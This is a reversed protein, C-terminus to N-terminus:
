NFVIGLVGGLHRSIGDGLAIESPKQPLLNSRIGYKEIKIHLIIARSGKIDGMTHTLCCVESIGRIVQHDIDWPELRYPTYLTLLGQRGCM